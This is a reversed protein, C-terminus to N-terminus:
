IKYKTWAFKKRNNLYNRDQDKDYAEQEFPIMYYALHLDRYKKYAALYFLGYLFLFGLVWLEKYQEWHITEHLKTRPNIKGQCFIFPGLTIAWIKSLPSFWSLVVPVKSHEFFVLLKM